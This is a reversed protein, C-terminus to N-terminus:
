NANETGRPNEYRTCDGQQLRQSDCHISTSPTLDAATGSRSQETTDGDIRHMSAIGGCSPCQQPKPPHESTQKNAKHRFTQLPPVATTWAAHGGLIMIIMRHIWENMRSFFRRRVEERPCSLATAAAVCRMGQETRTVSAM